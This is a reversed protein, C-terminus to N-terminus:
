RIAQTPGARDGKIRDRWAAAEKLKGSAEYLAVCRDAAEALRHKFFPFIWAEHAKMVEYGPVILREAEAYEKRALLIAGRRSMMGESWDLWERNYVTKIRPLWVDWEAGARALQGIDFYLNGLFIHHYVRSWHDPPLVEDEVRLTEEHFAIAEERRGEAAILHALIVRGIITRLDRPGLEADCRANTLRVLDMAREAKGDAGYFEALLLDNAIAKSHAPGLDKGMSEILAIAKDRHGCFFAANALDTTASITVSQTPPLKAKCLSVVDDLAAIADEYRGRDLLAIRALLARAFLTNPNDPGVHKERVAVLAEPAPIVGDRGEATYRQVALDARTELTQDDDPGYRAEALKLTEEKAALSQSWLGSAEASSNLIFRTLMVDPHDPSLIRLQAALCLEGQEIAQTYLGADNCALALYYRSMFVAPDHPSFRAESLRLTAEALPVAEAAARGAWLYAESLYNRARITLRDDPGLAAECAALTSRGGEVAGAMGGVKVSCRVLEVRTELVERDAPNLGAGRVVLAQEMVTKADSWQGIGGYTLGLIYLLRGKIAPSEAFATDLSREARDLLEVVRLKSGDAAPSQFASVIFGQVAEAEKLARSARVALVASVATAAVLLLAFAAATALAARHKRAFKGLRYRASPPGAEVADGDLYRRVDKAFGTATEYRRARDKELARMVIWDLDGRVLRTLRAPETHRVASLSALRDGSGSLRTSPRPPEEERIRRLIEAFGAQRLSERELPTTGTLLEYLLVGLTYIDSRTDVDVASTGAQEPSMYEPTGVIAGFQTFLTRETLRQEIAKAVGFDIVKPVAAGDYLTVLVNTPKVDRHVIGKQHAHQIAQCVPIFLELREKPSLRAEDCYETIPVGKVLEMVFFPRGSDTTGADLVRAINPHDMLALAQREAEFRAVVQASDMGAKIVKLAVKRRVPREQEAMFVVGMGGDGIQQLLKYPGVWQGPGEAPSPQTPAGVWPPPGQADTPPSALFDGIGEHARLLAEIRLRLADEGRCAEDLYADRPLGAPRELADAFISRLDPPSPEM